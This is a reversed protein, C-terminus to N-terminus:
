NMVRSAVSALLLFYFVNHKVVLSYKEKDCILPAALFGVLTHSPKWVLLDPGSRTLLAVLKSTMELLINLEM